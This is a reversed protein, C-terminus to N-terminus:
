VLYPIILGAIMAFIVIAALIVGVTKMFKGHM